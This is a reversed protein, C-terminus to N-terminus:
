TVVKLCADAIDSILASFTDADELLFDAPDLLYDLHLAQSLAVVGELVTESSPRIKLSLLLFLFLHFLNM